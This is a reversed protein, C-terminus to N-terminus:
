RVQLDQAALISVLDDDTLGSLDMRKKEKRQKYRVLIVQELSPSALIIRFLKGRLKLSTSLVEDFCNCLKLKFRELFFVCNSTSESNQTHRLTFTM